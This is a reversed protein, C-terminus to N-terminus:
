KRLQELQTHSYIFYQILVRIEATSQRTGM